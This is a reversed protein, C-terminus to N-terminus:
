QARRKLNSYLEEYREIWTEIVEIKNATVGEYYSLKNLYPTFESYSLLWQSIILFIIQFFIVKKLIREFHLM